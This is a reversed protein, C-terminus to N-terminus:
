KLFGQYFAKIKPLTASVSAKNKILTRNHAAANERLKSDELATLIASALAQPDRPDVLLGNVGPDIWARLPEIAGAVPFCGCAMAELLSNPTGDHSSPSVFVKAEKMLAWLESQPLKPLLFVNQSIGLHNVLKTIKPKGALGPCIFLTKPRKNLVKAAATIFVDQHVSGPRLGRPNVVWDSERPIRFQDPDFRSAGRIKNLDIGGSGPVVLTPAHHDLGWERALRMDRQTDSTLGDARQLCSKTSRRMLLSGKAHLTLDNGWTASLFPIGEPTASGLMGEFPIRLAHVLDPQTERLLQRYTKRYRFLTLPGLLYRLSQFLPSFRRILSKLGAPTEQNVNDSKIAPSGSLWSFAVLLVHFHQIGEPQQCPFTSILSVDFDLSRVHRIWSLATPSRGDAIFLIHAKKM